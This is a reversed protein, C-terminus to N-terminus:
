LERVRRGALHARVSALREDFRVPAEAPQQELEPRRREVLRPERGRELQVEAVAEAVVPECPADVVPELRLGAGLRARDEVADRELRERVHALVRARARDLHQELAAADAHGHADAVVAAAEVERRRVGGRSGPCMPMMEMRSRASAAPPRKASM